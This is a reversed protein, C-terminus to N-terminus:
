KEEESYRRVLEEAKKEMARKIVLYDEIKMVPAFGSNIEGKKNFYRLNNLEM